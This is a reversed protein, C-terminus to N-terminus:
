GRSKKKAPERTGDLGYVGAHMDTSVRLLREIEVFRQLVEEAQKIRNAFAHDKKAVAEELMKARHTVYSEEADALVKQFYERHRTFNEMAATGYWDLSQEADLASVDASKAVYVPLGIGSLLAHNM